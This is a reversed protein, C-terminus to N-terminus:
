TSEKSQFLSDCERRILKQPLSKLATSKILDTNKCIIIYKYIM